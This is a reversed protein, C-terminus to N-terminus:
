KNANKRWDNVMLIDFKLNTSIINNLNDERSVIYELYLKADKELKYESVVVVDKVLSVYNMGKRLIVARVAEVDLDDTIKATAMRCIVRGGEIRETKEVSLVEDEESVLVKVTDGRELTKYEKKSIIKSYHIYYDKKKDLPRIYGYGKASNFFLVKALM